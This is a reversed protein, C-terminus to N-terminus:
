DGRRARGEGPGRLGGGRRPPVAGPRRERARYGAVVALSVLGTIVAIRERTKRRLDAGCGERESAGDRPATTVIMGDRIPQISSGRPFTQPTIARLRYPPSVQLSGGLVGLRRINLSSPLAETNYCPSAHVKALVLHQRPRVICQPSRAPSRAERRPAAPWPALVPPAHGPRLRRQAARPTMVRRRLGDAVLVGVLASPDAVLNVSHLM